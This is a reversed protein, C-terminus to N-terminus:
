SLGGKNLYCHCTLGAPLDPLRARWWLLELAHRAVALSGGVRRTCQPHTWVCELPMSICHARAWLVDLPVCLESHM